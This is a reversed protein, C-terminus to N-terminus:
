WSVGKESGMGKHQLGRWPHGGTCPVAVHHRQTSELGCAGGGGSGAFCSGVLCAGWGSASQKLPAGDVEMQIRLESHTLWGVWRKWGPAAGQPRWRVFGVLGWDDGSKQTRCGVEASRWGNCRCRRQAPQAAGKWPLGEAPSVAFSGSM